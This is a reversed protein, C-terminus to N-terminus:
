GEPLGAVLQAPPHIGALILIVHQHQQEDFVDAVFIGSHRIRRDSNRITGAERIHNCELTLRVNAVLYVLLDDPRQSIGVPQRVHRIEIVRTFQPTTRLNHLTEGVEDGDKFVLREVKTLVTGLTIVDKTIGIFVQHAVEGGLAALALPLEIGRGLDTTDHRLNDTNTICLRRVFSRDIIRRTAGPRQQELNAIFSLRLNREVALLLVGSGGTQCTHIHDQM